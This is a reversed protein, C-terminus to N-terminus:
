TGISSATSTRRNCDVQSRSPLRSPTRVRCRSRARPAGAADRRQLAADRHVAARRTDRRDRSDHLHQSSGAGGRRPGGASLPTEGGTARRPPPPLFKLAVHRGLREDLAKYVVGMAGSGLAELVRYRGVSQGEWGLMSSRAQSIAPALDGVLRDVMGPATTRRSSRNWRAPARRCRRRVRSRAGREADRRDCDIRPPSSRSCVSGASPRCRPPGTSTTRGPPVAHAVHDTVSPAGSEVLRPRPDLGAQGNGTLHRAGRCDGRREDRRLLPVRRNARPADNMATLRQLAEDLALM